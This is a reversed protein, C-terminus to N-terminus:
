WPLADEFWINARENVPRRDVMAQWIDDHLIITLRWGVPNKFRRYGRQYLAEFIVDVDAM